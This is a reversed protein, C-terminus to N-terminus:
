SLNRRREDILRRLERNYARDAEKVADTRKLLIEFETPTLSAMLLARRVEKPTLGAAKVVAAMDLKKGLGGTVSEGRSLKALRERAIERRKAAEDALREHEKRKAEASAILHKHGEATAANTDRMAEWFMEDDKANEQQIARQEEETVMPIRAHLAALIRTHEDTGLRNGLRTLREPLKAWFALRERVSVATDVSGLAGIYESQVKGSIRRTQILRAYIRTGQHQFRVFM